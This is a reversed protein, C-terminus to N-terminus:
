GHWARSYNTSGFMWGFVTFPVECKIRLKTSRCLRFAEGACVWPVAVWLEGCESDRLRKFYAEIQGASHFTTLDRETKAEGILTEGRLPCHVFLDPRANGVIPPLSYNAVDAYVFPETSWPKERICGLLAGVLQRHGVSEPM